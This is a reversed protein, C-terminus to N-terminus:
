VCYIFRSCSGPANGTGAPKVTKDLAQLVQTLKKTQKSAKAKTKAKMM